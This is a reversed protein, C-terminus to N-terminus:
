FPLRVEVWRAPAVVIGLGMGLPVGVLFGTIPATIRKGGETESCKAACIMGAVVGLLGGVGGGTLFANRWDRGRAIQLNKLQVIEIRYPATTNSKSVEISGNVQRLLRGYSATDSTRYVARISDGSRLDQIGIPGSLQCATLLALCFLCTRSKM